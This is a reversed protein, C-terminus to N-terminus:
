CWARGGSQGACVKVEDGKAWSAWAPNKRTQKWSVLRQTHLLLPATPQSKRSENGQITKKQETTEKKKRKRMLIPMRNKEEGTKNRLERTDRRLRLLAALEGLRCSAAKRARM